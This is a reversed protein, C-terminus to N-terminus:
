RATLTSLNYDQYDLGQPTTLTEFMVYVAGFVGVRSMWLHLPVTFLERRWPAHLDFSVRGSSACPRAQLMLLHGTLALGFGGASRIASGSSIAM